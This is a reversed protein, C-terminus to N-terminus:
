FDSGLVPDVQRHLTSRLPRGSHGLVLPSSFWIVSDSAVSNEKQIVKKMKKLPRVKTNVTPYTKILMSQSNTRLGM